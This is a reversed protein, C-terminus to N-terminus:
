LKKEQGWLIDAHVVAWMSSGVSECALRAGSRFAFADDSRATPAFPADFEAGGNVYARLQHVVLLQSRSSLIQWGVLLLLCSLDDSPTRLELTSFDRDSTSTERSSRLSSWSTAWSLPCCCLRADGELLSTDVSIGDGTCTPQQRHQQITAGLSCRYRFM